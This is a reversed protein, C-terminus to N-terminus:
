CSAIKYDVKTSKDYNVAGKKQNMEEEKIPFIIPLQGKM